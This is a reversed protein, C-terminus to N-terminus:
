GENLSINVGNLEVGDDAHILIYKSGGIIRTEILDGRDPNVKIVVDPTRVEFQKPDILNRPSLEADAGFEADFQQAFKERGEGPVGCTELVARVERKSLVLPDPTKSAKHEEIIDSLQAHVAKVVQMSCGEDLSNGLMARFTERQEDAPMPPETRFIADILEPHNDAASRTYYLAGYINSARGDFAPFLFGLEPSGVVWDVSRKHFERNDSDYRLASKVLKVPCIACTIYPFMTDSSDELQAGDKARYPVDYADYALLIVFNGEFTLAEIVRHFLQEVADTDGLASDRLTTLLRHEESSAVQQTAFSIDLLNKGLTGSMTRRFITLFKETEEEEMLAMSQNFMSIIEKSENVYCGLVRTIGNKEPRLRRRLEGIEKDNM